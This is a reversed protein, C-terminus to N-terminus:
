KPKRRTKLRHSKERANEGGTANERRRKKRVGNKM